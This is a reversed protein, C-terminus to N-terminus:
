GANRTALGIMAITHREVRRAGIPQSHFEGDIRGVDLVDIGNAAGFRVGLELAPQGAIVGDVIELPRVSSARNAMMGFARWSCMLVAKGAFTHRTPVTSGFPKAWIVGRPLVM